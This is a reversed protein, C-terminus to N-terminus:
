DAWNPRRTLEDPEVLGAYPDEEDEEEDCEYECLCGGADMHAAQNPQHTRCGWCSIEREEEEEEEEEQEADSEGTLDIVDAAGKRFSAAQACLYKKLPGKCAFFGIGGCKGSCDEFEPEEERERKTGRKVMVPTDRGLPVLGGETRLAKAAKKAKKLFAREEAKEKRKAIQEPTLPAM